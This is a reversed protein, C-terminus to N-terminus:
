SDCHFIAYQIILYLTCTNWSQVQPLVFLYCFLCIQAFLLSATFGMHDVLRWDQNCDKSAVQSGLKYSSLARQGDM